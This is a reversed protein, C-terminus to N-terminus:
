GSLSWKADGDKVSGDNYSGTTPDPWRGGPFTGSDVSEGHLVAMQQAQVGLTATLTSVAALILGSNVGAEEVALAIGAWSLAVSGLLAIVGAMAIIFKVLILGIAIYFALGATACVGLALSTKDAITGIKAAANSQPTVIKRYAEAAEGNWDTSGTMADPKLQGSVDTALGRLDQWEIAYQFFYIPATVGKMVEVIKDWITQALSVAKDALWLVADAVFDPVYWHDIGAEAAPRIENIKGSLDRLGDNIKDQAAQLQTESFALM